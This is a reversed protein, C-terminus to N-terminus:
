VTIEDKIKQFAADKIGPVKMIDEIAQFGGSNERYRIIDGARAEGIGSLGMLEEKTATNLNVKAPEAATPKRLAATGYLNEGPESLLEEQTPVVLKMGDAVPEALNLYDVAADQTYGGAQEVVQYIRQGEEMEYVGPRAVAGCIHVYCVEAPPIAAPLSGDEVPSGHEEGSGGAAEPLSSAVDEAQLGGTEATDVRLSVTESRRGCSHCFGATIVLVAVVIWRRFGYLKHKMRDEGIRSFGM